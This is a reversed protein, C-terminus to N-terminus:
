HFFDRLGEGVDEDPSDRSASVQAANSLGDLGFVAEDLGVASGGALAPSPSLLPQPGEHALAGLPLTIEMATGSGPPSDLSIRGGLAEVRDKLGALGSSDAFNAGGRGDDRVSVRLVGDTATVHVDAASADAHKITNTLAESVMYYAAIEVPDPLRGELEIHLRVPVASRRALVTLAPRLGGAALVAPHLGHAIERLEDLVGTVTAAMQGLWQVLEDAQPPEAQAARLQLALSVLRQQAGDHLDREFRRRTQDATAVIRARSAQLEAQADANSIATAVLEIFGALRRETDPPLRGWRSGVGIVGWLRGDVVIPADVASRIGKIMEATGSPASEDADFRAARNTEKVLTALTGAPVPGRSGPRPEVAWGHGGMTTAQGDPELRVISATDAECLEGIEEAVAAFVAAPPEGRAVLMAVRRLAAQEAAVRGLEERAEANAIATAVLETFRALREETDPPLRRGHGAGVGMAGWLRGAVSIPVAVASRVGAARVSAVAEATALAEQSSDPSLPPGAADEGLDDIRAPRGTQFVLSTTNRGDLSGRHGVTVHFPTGPSVQVGIVTLTSDPDFRCMTTFDPGLLQHVEETVTGFVEEPPAASAVQVAIRRLAAQEEAIRRLQEAAVREGQGLMAQSTGPGAPM